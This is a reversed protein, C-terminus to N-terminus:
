VWIFGPKNDLLSCLPLCWAHSVTICANIELVLDLTRSLQSREARPSFFYQDFLLKHGSIKTRWKVYEHISSSPTRSTSTGPRPPVHVLADLFEIIIAPHPDSSYNGGCIRKECRFWGSLVWYLRLAILAYEEWIKGNGGIAKPLFATCDAVRGPRLLEEVVLACVLIWETAEQLVTEALKESQSSSSFPVLISTLLTPNYEQMFDVVQRELHSKRNSKSTTPTLSSTLRSAMNSNSRYLSNIHFDGDDDDGVISTLLGLFDPIQYSMM